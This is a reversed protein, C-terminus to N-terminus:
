DLHGRAPCGSGPKLAAGGEGVGEAVNATVVSGDEVGIVGGTNEVGRPALGEGGALDDVGAVGDTAGMAAGVSDAVAEGAM